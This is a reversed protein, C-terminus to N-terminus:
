PSEKIDFKAKSIENEFRRIDNNINESLEVCNVVKSNIVTLIVPKIFKLNIKFIKDLENDYDCLINHNLNFENVIIGIENKSNAQLIFYLAKRKLLTDDIIKLKSICATCGNTNAVIVIGNNIKIKKNVHKNNYEIFAGIEIGLFYQKIDKKDIEHSKFKAYIQFYIVIAVFITTLVVSIFLISRKDRILTM